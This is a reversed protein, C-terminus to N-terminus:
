QMVFSTFYVADIDDNGAAEKMVMKTEALVEARLKEKGERSSLRAPDQSSFLIVLNNRLAPSHEKLLDLMAPDRTGIQLDVQLFRIESDGSFNVVFAPSLPFYQLPLKAKKPKEPKKGDEGAAEETAAPEDGGLLLMTAAGSTALFLVAVVIIIILKGKGGGGSDSEEVNLDLDDEQAAM